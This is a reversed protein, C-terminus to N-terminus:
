RTRVAILGGAALAAASDGQVAGTLDTGLYGLAAAFGCALVVFFWLRGLRRPGWGSAALDASSATALQPEEDFLYGLQGALRSISPADDSM